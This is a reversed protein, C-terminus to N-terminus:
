SYRMQNSRYVHDISRVFIEAKNVNRKATQHRLDLWLVLELYKGMGYPTSLPHRTKMSWGIPFIDESDCPIYQVKDIGDFSILLIRGYAAVVTAVRILSPDEQDVAELKQGLKFTNKARQFNLFM